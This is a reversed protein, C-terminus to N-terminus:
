NSIWKNHSTVKSVLKRSCTEDKLMSWTENTIVHRNFKGLQKIVKESEIEKLMSWTKAPSKKALELKKNAKKREYKTCFNHMHVSTSGKVHFKMEIASARTNM